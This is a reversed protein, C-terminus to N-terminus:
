KIVKPRGRKKKIVEQIQSVVESPIVPNPLPQLPQEITDVLMLFLKALDTENNKLYKQLAEVNLATEIDKILYGDSVVKNDEVHTSSKKQIGFIETIKVRTTLSLELWKSYLIM